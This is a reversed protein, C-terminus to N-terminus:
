GGGIAAPSVGATAPKKADTCPPHCAVLATYPRIREPLHNLLSPKSDDIRQPLTPPILSLVGDTMTAHPLPIHEIPVSLM